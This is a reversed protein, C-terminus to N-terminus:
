LIENNSKSNTEFNKLIIMARDFDEENVMIQVGYLDIGGGLPFLSAINENTLFCEIEEDNLLTKIINAEFANAITTLKTISM